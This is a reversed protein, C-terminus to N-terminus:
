PCGYAYALSFTDNDNYTTYGVHVGGDAAIALSPGFSLSGAVTDLAAPVTWSGGPPQYAYKPGDLAIYAVHVGGAEDVVLATVEDGGVPGEPDAIPNTMWFWDPAKYSYRVEWGSGDTELAFATIHVGGERDVAIASGWGADADIDVNEPESWAGAPSRYLYMLDDDADDRYAVHVGGAADVALASEPGTDPADLPAPTTWAGGAAKAAYRLSGPAGAIVHLGGTSDIALSSQANPDGSAGITETAWAGGVPRFAHAVESTARRAYSVHLAGGADIALSTKWAVSTAPTVVSTTWSGSPPKHAHLLSDDSDDEYTLHVGGGADLAMSTRPGLQSGTDLTALRWPEATCGRGGGDPAADAVNADDRADSGGGGGGGCAALAILSVAASIHGRSIQTM